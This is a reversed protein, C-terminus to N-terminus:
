LVVLICSLGVGGAPDLLLVNDRHTCNQSSDFLSKKALIRLFKKIFTPIVREHIGTIYRIIYTAYLTYLNIWNLSLTTAAIINKRLIDISKESKNQEKFVNYYAVLHSKKKSPFSYNPSNMVTIGTYVIDIATVRLRLFQYTKM